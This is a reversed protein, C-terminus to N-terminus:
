KITDSSSISVGNKQAIEKPTVDKAAKCELDAGVSIMLRLLENPLKLGIAYHLLSASWPSQDCANIVRKKDEQNLTQCSKLKQVIKITVKTLLSTELESIENMSLVQLM